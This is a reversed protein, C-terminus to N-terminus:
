SRRTRPELLATNVLSMREYGEKLRQIEREAKEAQNYLREDIQPPDELQIFRVVHPMFM